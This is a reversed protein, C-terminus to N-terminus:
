KRTSGSSRAATARSRVAIAVSRVGAAQCAEYIEAMRGHSVAREGRITVALDPHTARLGELTAALDAVEVLDGGLRVEGTAQM